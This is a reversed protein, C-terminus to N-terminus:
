YWSGWLLLKLFAKRDEPIKLQNFYKKLVKADLKENEVGYNIQRELKWVPDAKSQKKYDKKTYDWTM